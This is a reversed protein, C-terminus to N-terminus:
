WQVAFELPYAARMQANAVKAHRKRFAQPAARFRFGARASLQTKRGAGTAILLGIACSFFSSLIEAIAL